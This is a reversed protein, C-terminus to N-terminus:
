FLTLYCVEYSVTGDPKHNSVSRLSMKCGGAVDACEVVLASVIVATKAESRLFEVATCKLPEVAHFPLRPYCPAGCVRWDM